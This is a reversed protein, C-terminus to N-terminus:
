QTTLAGTPCSQVCAITGDARHCCLTCLSITGIPHQQHPLAASRLELTTGFYGSPPVEFLADYACASLCQRCGPVCQGADVSVLGEPSQSLANTPCTAVCPAADCHRCTHLAWSIREPSRSEVREIRLWAVSPGTRNEQKCALVCNLCGTCLASHFQLPATM